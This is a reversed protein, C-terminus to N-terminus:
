NGWTAFMGIVAFTMTLTALWGFIALVRSIRFQGMTKESTALRMIMVM